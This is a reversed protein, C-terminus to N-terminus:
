TRLYNLTEAKEQTISWHLKNKRKVKEKLPPYDKRGQEYFEFLRIKYREIYM